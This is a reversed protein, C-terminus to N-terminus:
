ISSAGTCSATRANSGASFDATTRPTSKSLGTGLSNMSEIKADLSIVERKLLLNFDDDSMSLKDKIEQGTLYRGYVQELEKIQDLYNKNQYYINRPMRISNTQERIAKLIYSTIWNYAYTSFKTKKNIDFKEVAKVLGINGEAILDSLDVNNYSILNNYKHAISAVLRQNSNIMITKALMYKIYYFIKIMLDKGPIKNVNNFDTFLNYKNPNSFYTTLEEPTPIHGLEKALKNYEQLYYIMIKDSKSEKRGYQIYYNMLANTIYDKEKYTTISALIQELNLIPEINGKIKRKYILEEIQPYLKLYTGYKQEEERTLLPYKKLENTYLQSSTVSSIDKDSIKFDELYDDQLYDTIKM